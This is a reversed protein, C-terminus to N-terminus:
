LKAHLMNRTSSEVRLTWYLGLACLIWLLTVGIGLPLAWDAVLRVAPRTLAEAWLEGAAMIGAEWALLVVHEFAFRWARGVYSSFVTVAVALSVLTVATGVFFPVALLRAQPTRLWARGREGLSSLWLPVPQWVHVLVRDALGPRPAYAPLLALHQHTVPDEEAPTRPEMPVDRM